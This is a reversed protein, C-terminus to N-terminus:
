RCQRLGFGRLGQALTGEMGARVNYRTTWEPTAQQHRTRQLANHEQETRMTM